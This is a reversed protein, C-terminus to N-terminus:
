DETLSYEYFRKLDHIFDSLRHLDSRRPCLPIIGNAERYDPLLRDNRYLYEVVEDFLYRCFCYRTFLRDPLNWLLSEVQFDSVEKASGCGNEAMLHRMCKMMRVAKKYGRNTEADRARGVAIHQEPYRVLREGGDTLIEVGQASGGEGSFADRRDGCDRRCPVILMGKRDASGRVRIWENEREVDGEFKERLCKEVDDKFPNMGAKAKPPTSELVVGIEIDEEARMSTDCAYAGQVFLRIKRASGADAMEHGYALTDEFLPSAPRGDDTYGLTRLADRVTDAADRCNQGEAESLPAAYLRLQSETFKMDRTRGEIRKKQEAEETGGEGAFGDTM